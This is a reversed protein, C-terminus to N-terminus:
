ARIAKRTLEVYKDIMEARQFGRSCAVCDICKKNPQSPDICTVNKLGEMVAFTVNSFCGLNEVSKSITAPTESIRVVNEAPLLTSQRVDLEQIQFMRCLLNKLKAVLSLAIGSQYLTYGGCGESRLNLFEWRVAVMWAM